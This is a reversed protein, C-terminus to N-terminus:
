PTSHVHSFHFLLAKWVWSHSTPTNSIVLWQQTQGPPMNRIAPRRWPAAPSRASSGSPRATQPRATGPPQDGARLRPTYHRVRCHTVPSGEREFPSSVSGQNGPVGVMRSAFSADAGCTRWGRGRQAPDRGRRSTTRGRRCPGGSRTRSTEPPRRTREASPRLRADRRMWSGSNLRSEPRATRRSAFWRARRIPSFGCSWAAEGGSRHAVSQHGTGSVGCTVVRGGWWAPTKMDAAFFPAPWSAESQNNNWRYVAGSQVLSYKRSSGRPTCLATPPGDWSYAPETSTAPLPGVAHSGNSRDSTGPLRISDTRM